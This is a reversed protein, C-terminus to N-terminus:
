MERESADSSAQIERYSIVNKYNTFPFHWRRGLTKVEYHKNTILNAQVDSSNFKARWWCDSNKFVRVKSEGFVKFHILYIDDGKQHKTETKIVRGQYVDAWVHPKIWIALLCLIVAIGGTIKLKTKIDLKKGEM